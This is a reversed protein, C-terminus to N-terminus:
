GNLVRGQERTWCLQGIAKFKNVSMAGRRERPENDQRQLAVDIEERSASYIEQTEYEADMLVLFVAEWAGDPSLQGIRYNRKAEDFIVRGKVQIPRGQEDHLDVGARVAAPEQCQLLRCADYKALENTVPLAQQTTRYFEAALRRTELMLKDVSYISM